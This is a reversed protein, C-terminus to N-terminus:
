INVYISCKVFDGVRIYYVVGNLGEYIWQIWKMIYWQLWINIIVKAATYCNSNYSLYTSGTFNYYNFKYAMNHKTLMYVQIRGSNHKPTHLFSFFILSFGCWYFHILPIKKCLLAHM